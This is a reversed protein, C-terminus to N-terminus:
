KFDPLFWSYQGRQTEIKERAADYNGEQAEQLALVVQLQLNKFEAPVRLELVQYSITEARAADRFDFGGLANNLGDRYAQNLEDQDVADEELITNDAPAAQATGAPQEAVSAREDAPSTFWKIFVFLLAVGILGTVALATNVHTVTRLHRHVKESDIPM